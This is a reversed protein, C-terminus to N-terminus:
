LYNSLFGDERLKEVVFLAGRPTLHQGDRTIPTMKEDLFFKCEPKCLASHFDYFSAKDGILQKLRINSGQEFKPRLSELYNELGALRGHNAALTTLGPKLYPQDGIVVVDTSIDENLSDITAKLRAFTREEGKWSGIMVAASIKDHYKVLYKNFVFDMLGECNHNARWGLIPRCSASTAQIFHLEPYKEKLAHAIHAATSDGVVLINKKQDDYAFCDRVNFDKPFVQHKGYNGGIYCEGLGWVKNDEKTAKDGFTLVYQLEDSVRWPWGSQSWATSTPLSLLLALSTFIFGVKAPTDFVRYSSSRLPTEILRYLLEAFVFCAVLALLTESATLPRFSYYHLFVYLPWHVLYLSYSILGVRVMIPNKLLGGLYKTDGSYILLAAGLCPILASFGPFSTEHSFVFVSYLILLWGSLALLERAGNRKPQYNVWVLAAGISFEFIRFPMLYFVAEPDRALVYQSLLLSCMTIALIVLFSLKPVLRLMVFVLLLPWVMYFQEEVGLSQLPM